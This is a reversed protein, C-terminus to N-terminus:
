ASFNKHHQIALTTIPLLDFFLYQFVFLLEKGVSFEDKQIETDFFNPWKDAYVLMFTASRFGISLAFIILTCRIMM